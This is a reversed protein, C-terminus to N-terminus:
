VRSGALQVQKAEIKVNSICAPLNWCQKDIVWMSTELIHMYGKM